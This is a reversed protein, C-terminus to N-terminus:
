TTFDSSWKLFRMVHDSARHGGYAPKSNSFFRHIIKIYLVMTHSIFHYLSIMVGIM